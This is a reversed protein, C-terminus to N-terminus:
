SMDGMAEVKPWYEADITALNDMEPRTATLAAIRGEYGSGRAYGALSYGSPGPLMIDAIILDYPEEAERAADFLLIAEPANGSSEVIHGRATLTVEIIRRISQDDECVLIRM